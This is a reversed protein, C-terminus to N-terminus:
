GNTETTKLSDVFDQFDDLEDPCYVSIIRLQGQLLRSEAIIPRSGASGSGNVLAGLLAAKALGSNPDQCVAGGDDGLVGAILDASPATGGDAEIAAILEDAKQQAEETDRASRFTILAIVTLIVLLGVAVAYIIGRHRPQSTELETSV